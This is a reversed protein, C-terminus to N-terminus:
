VPHEGGSEFEIVLKRDDSDLYLTKINRDNDQKQVQRLISELGVAATGATLYTKPFYVFCRNPDPDIAIKPKTSRAGKAM